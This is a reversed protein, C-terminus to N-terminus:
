KDGRKDLRTVKCPFFDHGPYERQMYEAVRNWCETEDKGVVTITELHQLSRFQLKM